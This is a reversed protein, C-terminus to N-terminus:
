YLPRFRILRPKRTARRPPWPAHFAASQAPADAHRVGDRLLAERAAASVWPDRKPSYNEYAAGTDVIMM